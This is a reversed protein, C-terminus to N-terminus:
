LTNLSEMNTELTECCDLGLIGSLNASRSTQLGPPEVHIHLYLQVYHSLSKMYIYLQVHTILRHIYVYTHLSIHM